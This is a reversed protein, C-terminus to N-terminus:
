QGQPEAPEVAAAEAPGDVAIVAPWNGWVATLPLRDLHSAEHVRIRVLFVMVGTEQDTEWGASHVTGHIKVM